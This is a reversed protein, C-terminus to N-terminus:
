AKETEKKQVREKVDSVKEKVDALKEKMESMTENVYDKLDDFRDDLDEKLDEARKSLKDRTVEGKDPAYLIGIAAGIVAGSLLGIIFNGTSNAMTKLNKLTLIV